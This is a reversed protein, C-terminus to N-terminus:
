IIKCDIQRRKPDARLIQFRVPDGLRFKKNTNKGVLTHTKQDFLYFDDGLERVRVLGECRTENDEVFIGWDTVGSIIGNFIKGVREQMYEVQKFKISDREAEQAVGERKSAHILRAELPDREEEKIMEGSLYRALYRHVLVDPYRRIPSTFHTYDDFALGFHGINKTSYVAKSMSQIAAREVLHEEPKGEVEALVRNIEKPTTNGKKHPLTHGFSKLLTFLNDIKDADPKDHIRYIFVPGDGTKKKKSVFEAVRRNALLMFDEVLRHADKREKKYIELPYGAEGLNFKIEVDDFTIAGNQEREARIKKALKNLVALEKAFPGEGTELVTQAEEYTFRKDSHIVTRGFWESLVHANDDLTFVASFTFKDENPNLSCLDNSLTEPLMPLTRDVLYVSTGRDEAERDLATNPRLFHSVDAIHIGVEYGGEVERFSLADDFDKADLPDITCTPIHRFDKRKNKEEENVLAHLSAAEKELAEPFNKVIGRELVISQMETEHEGPTGIVQIIDGTPGHKQDGWSKIEVLVKKGVHDKAHSSEPLLIDVYMKPHDPILYFMGADQAVEGVFRNKYRSVIEVVEGRPNGKISEGGLLRVRVQDRHLATRLFEPSIEISRDDPLNVYGVGKGGIRLEGSFTGAVIESSNKM